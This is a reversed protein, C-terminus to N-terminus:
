EYVLGWRRLAQEAKLPASAEFAAFALRPLPLGEIDTTPLMDPPMREAPEDLALALALPARGVNPTEVIGIGRVEMRGIITAPTEAILMDGERVVDVGDDSLLVAGRDILRLALDSKGSGSPGTLLLGRGEIVVCTAHLRTM